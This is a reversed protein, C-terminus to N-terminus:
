STVAGAGSALSPDDSTGKAFATTVLISGPPPLNPDYNPAGVGPFGPGSTLPQQLGSPVWTYGDAQRIQMTTLPNWGWAMIPVDITYGQQALTTAAAVRNAPDSINQLAQVAPPQMAWYAQAATLPKDPAVPAGGNVTDALAAQDRTSGTVLSQFFPVYVEPPADPQTATAPSAVSTAMAAPTLAPQTLAPQTLTPTTAPQTIFKMAASVQRSDSNQGSVTSAATGMATGMSPGASTQESAAALQSAFSSTSPSSSLAGASGASLVETNPINGIITIM